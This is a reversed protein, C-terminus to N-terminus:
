HILASGTYILTHLAVGRTVGENCFPGAAARAVDLEVAITSSAGLSQVAAQPITFSGTDDPRCLVFRADGNANLARGLTISMQAPRTPATWHITAQSSTLVVPANGNTLAPTVQFDEVSGVTTSASQIMAAPDGDTHWIWQHRINVLTPDFFTQTDVGTAFDYTNMATRRLTVTTLADTSTLILNTGINRYPGLSTMSNIWTFTSCTNAAIGTYLVSEIPPRAIYTQTLFNISSNRVRIRSKTSQDWMDFDLLEISGTIASPKTPDTTPDLVPCPYGGVDPSPTADM